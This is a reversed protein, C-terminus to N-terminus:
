NLCIRTLRIDFINESLERVTRRTVQNTAQIHLVGYNHKSVEFDWPGPGVTYELLHIVRVRVDDCLRPTIHRNLTSELLSDLGKRFEMKQRLTINM